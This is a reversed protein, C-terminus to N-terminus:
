KKLSIFTFIDNGLPDMRYGQVKQSVGRFIVSHVLPVWPAQEHFIKQAKKYFLARQKRNTVKKAKVVLDNFSRHCWRAVNSGAAIGACGLLVNLFNDPDANDSTWGFQILAHKGTRSEKLYTPWDYTVLRAKIGVQALDAQMMEGMKKGNPNYPRTVPLTWIETEFGKPFGAQALLKRAKKPNYDYGKIGSYYSWMQPPIPGRAAVAYGFYLAEIYAKKNLAHNIAQRVKLNNFPKKSTNMALYGVNLSPLQMVRLRPDAKMSKIDTPAPEIILHCEGVKLKQYRVSPDPTISFVINRIKPVSRWYLDNRVYRILTDKVYKKFIFPGTGVPLTDIQEMKGKKQLNDAYEKSLISMFGMALNALFPAEPQTLVIQVKHSGLKEISQILRDMEMSNFYDYSSSSVKHYPHKKDWQRRISFIVDDANLERTPTFYSTKHFKVGKRLFFTYTKRDMSINWSRALASVIETTGHKFEVLRNYIIHTTANNTTGDTTVQPNFSSPSGESCYIFTKASLGQNLLFLGFFGLLGILFLTKYRMGKM